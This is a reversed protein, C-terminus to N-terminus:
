KAAAKKRGAKKKTAAQYDASRRDGGKRQVEPWAIAHGKLLPSTKLLERWVDQDSPYKDPDAARIAKVTDRLATPLKFITQAYAEPQTTKKPM